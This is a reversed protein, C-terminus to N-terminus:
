NQYLVKFQKFGISVELSDIEMTEINCEYRLYAALLARHCMKYEKEWCLLVVPLAYKGFYELYYEKPYYDLKTYYLKAFQLPTIQGKKLASITGWSPAVDKWEPICMTNPKTNSISICQYESPINRYNGYYSTYIKPLKIVM